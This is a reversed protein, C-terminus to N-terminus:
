MTNTIQTTPTLEGDDDVDRAAAAPGAEPGPEACSVCVACACACAYVRTVREFDRASGVEAAVVVDADVEADLM